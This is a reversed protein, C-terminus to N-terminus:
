KELETIIIHATMLGTLIILIWYIEFSRWQNEGMLLRYSRLETVRYSQLETGPDPTAHLQHSRDDPASVLGTVVAVQLLPVSPSLQWPEARRM